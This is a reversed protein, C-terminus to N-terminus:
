RTAVACRGIPLARLRDHSAACGRAHEAQDRPPEAGSVEVAIHDRLAERELASVPAARVCDAAAFVASLYADCVPVGTPPPARRAAAAQAPSARAAETPAPEVRPASLAAPSATPDPRGGGHACAVLIPALGVLALFVSRM